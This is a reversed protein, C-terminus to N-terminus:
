GRPRLLGCRLLIEKLAWVHDPVTDRFGMPDTMEDIVRMLAEEREQVRAFRNPDYDLLLLYRLAMPVVGNMTLRAWRWAGKSREGASKAAMEGYVHRVLDRTVDPRAKELIDLIRDQRKLAVTKPAPASDVQLFRAFPDFELGVPASPPVPVVTTYGFTHVPAAREVPLLAVRPKLTVISADVFDKESAALGGLLLLDVQWQFRELSSLLNERAEGHLPRNLGLFTFRGIRTLGESLEAKLPASLPTARFGQLEHAAVVEIEERAFHGRIAPAHATPRLTPPTDIRQTPEEADDAPEPLTFLQLSSPAEETEDLAGLYFAIGRQAALAAPNGAFVSCRLPLSVGISRELKEASDQLAARLNPDNFALNHLLDRSEADLHRFPFADYTRIDEILRVSDGDRLTEEWLDAHSRATDGPVFGALYDTVNGLRALTQTVATFSTGTPFLSHIAM